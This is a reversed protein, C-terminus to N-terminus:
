MGTVMQSEKSLGHCQVEMQFIFMKYYVQVLNYLFYLCSCTYYKYYYYKYM